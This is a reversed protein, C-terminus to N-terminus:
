VTKGSYSIIACGFLMIMLGAVYFVMASPVGTQPLTEDGGDALPIDEDEIIVTPNTPEEPTEEPEDGDVLPVDEDEIIVPNTPEEPTEEPNEPTEEPVEPTEEPDEPTEEPVEPTEEPDEPTEEPVEPTEEPDEPTEEPDEPTEEPVEPAEEALHLTMKCNSVSGGRELYCITMTHMGEELSNLVDSTVTVTEKVDSDSGVTSSTFDGNDLMHNGVTTVEKTAFNITGDVSDHVGGLDLVLKGDIFVWVDDDGSFELTMDEKEGKANESKGDNTMYFPVEMTMGFYFNKTGPMYVSGSSGVLADNFPMFGVPSAYDKMEMAYNGNEDLTDSVKVHNKSSDFTLYGNEDRVLPLNFAGVYTDSNEDFLSVEKNGSVATFGEALAFKNDVFEDAAIGEYIKYKCKKEWSNQRGPKEGLAPYQNDQNFLILGDDTKSTLATEGDYKGTYFEGTVSDRGSQEYDFLKATYYVVETKDETNEEAVAAGIGFTTLSLALTLAFATGGFIKKRLNM